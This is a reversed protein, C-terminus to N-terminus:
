TGSRPAVSEGGDFTVAGEDALKHLHAGVSIRAVPHLRADVDQYVIAVVADVTTAGDNVADLIAAERARRHRLYQDLVGAPDDIVPGHGPYIRNPGMAAVRELSTMYAAMDEVVVTSGGIVHDGSFLADETLFSTSDATHGPTAVVTLRAEGFRIADGDMVLRDPTFGPAGARGLAETGLEVALRNAAPAHDPHGHTVLVAVTAAGELRLRIEDLHGGIVPGPDVIVAEGQSRLVWTNTGAGTMLGPNPAVVVDVDV